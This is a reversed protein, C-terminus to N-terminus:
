WQEKIDRKKQIFERAINVVTDIPTLVPVGYKEMTIENLIPAFEALDTSGCPIIFTKTGKEEVCSKVTPMAIEMWEGFDAQEENAALAYVDVKFDEVSVIDGSFGYSEATQVIFSLVGPGHNHLLSIKGGLEVAKKYNAWAMGVCPISLKQRGEAIGFDGFSTTIVAGYGEREAM